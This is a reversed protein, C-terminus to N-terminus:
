RQFSPNGMQVARRPTAICERRDSPEGWTGKGTLRTTGFGLRHVPLYGGITFTGSKGAPENKPTTKMHIAKKKM